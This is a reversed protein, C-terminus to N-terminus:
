PAFFKIVIKKDKGVTIIKDLDDRKIMKVSM